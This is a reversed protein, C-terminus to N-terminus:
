IESRQGSEMFEEATAQGPQTIGERKLTKWITLAAIKLDLWISPHDVYWLM